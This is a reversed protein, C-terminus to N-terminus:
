LLVRMASIFSVGTDWSNMVFREGVQCMCTYAEGNRHYFTEFVIEDDQMFLSYLNAFHHHQFLYTFCLFTIKM